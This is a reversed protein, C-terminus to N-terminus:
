LRVLYDIATKTYEEKERNNNNDVQAVCRAIIYYEFWNM